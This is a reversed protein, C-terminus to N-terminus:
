TKGGIGIVLIKVHFHVYFAVAIMRIDNSGAVSRRLIIYSLDVFLKFFRVSVKVCFLLSWAVYASPLLHSTNTQM